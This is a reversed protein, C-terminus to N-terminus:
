MNTEELYERLRIEHERKELNYHVEDLSRIYEPPSTLEKFVDDVIRPTPTFPPFDVIKSHYCHKETKLYETAITSASEDVGLVEAFGRLCNEISQESIRCTIFCRRYGPIKPLVEVYNSFNKKCESVYDFDESALIGSKPIAMVWGTVKAGYRMHIVSLFFLILGKWSNSFKPINVKASGPEVKLHFADRMLDAEEKSFPNTFVLEASTCDKYKIIQSKVKEMKIVGLDINNKRPM